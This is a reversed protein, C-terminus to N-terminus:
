HPRKQNLITLGTSFFYFGSFRGLFQVCKKRKWKDTHATNLQLQHVKINCFIIRFNHWYYLFSIKVRQCVNCLSLSRQWTFMMLFSFLPFFYLDAAKWLFETKTSLQRIHQVLYYIYDFFIYFLEFHSQSCHTLSIFQYKYLIDVVCIQKRMLSDWWWKTFIFWCVVLASAHMLTVKFRRRACEKAEFFISFLECLRALTFPTRSAVFFVSISFLLLVTFQNIVPIFRSNRSYDFSFISDSFREFLSSFHLFIFLFEDHTHAHYRL